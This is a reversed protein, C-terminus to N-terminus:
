LKHEAVLSTVSLPLRHVAALSYSRQRCARVSLGLVTLFLHIFLLELANCIALLIFFFYISCSYTDIGIDGPSVGPRFALHKYGM